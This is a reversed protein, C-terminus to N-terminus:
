SALRRGQANGLPLPLSTSPGLFGVFGAEEASALDEGAIADAPLLVLIGAPRVALPVASHAVSNWTFVLPSYVRVSSALSVTSLDLPSGEGGEVLVADSLDAAM